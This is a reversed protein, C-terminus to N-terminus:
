VQQGHQDWSGESETIAHIICLAYISSPIIILIM